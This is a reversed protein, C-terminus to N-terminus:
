GTDPSQASLMLIQTHDKPDLDDHHTSAKQCECIVLNLYGTTRPPLTLVKNLQQFISKNFDELIYSNEFPIAHINRKENM